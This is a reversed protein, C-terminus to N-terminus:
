LTEPYVTVKLCQQFDTIAGILQTECSQHTCLVHQCDDLIKHTELHSFISSYIMHELTKSCISTLSIPRYNSPDTRKGKQTVNASKWDSPPNLSAQFIFPAM